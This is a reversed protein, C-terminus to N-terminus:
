HNQEHNEITLLKKIGTQYDPYLFRFGTQLLQSCQISKNSGQQRQTKPLTKTPDSINPLPHTQTLFHHITSIPTPNPDSLNISQPAPTLQSLHLLARAADDVYIRNSIKQKLDTPLPNYAQIRKLWTTRNPGYIGSLRASTNQCPLQKIIQEAALMTKGQFSQPQTSSSENVPEGNQQHYVSTSSVFVFHKPLRQQKTLQHILNNLAQIYAQHYAEPTSKKASVCYFLTDAQPLIPYQTQTLDFFLPQISQALPTNKKKIIYITNTQAYHAIMKGLYGYGVILISSM